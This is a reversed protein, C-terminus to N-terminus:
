NDPDKKALIHIKKDMNEKDFSRNKELFPTPFGFGLLFDEIPVIYALCFLFNEILFKM